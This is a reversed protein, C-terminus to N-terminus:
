DVYSFLENKINDYNTNHSVVQKNSVKLLTPITLKLTRADNTINLTDSLCINNRSNSLDVTYLPLKTRSSNYKELISNYLVANDEEMQYALVYYEEEKRNLISGCLIKTTQIEAKYVVDNQKTFLKWEGTKIKTFAFMLLVFGVVSVTLVLITKMNINANSDFERMSRKEKELRKKMEKKKM